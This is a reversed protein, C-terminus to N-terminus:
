LYVAIVALSIEEISQIGSENHGSEHQQRHDALAGEIGGLAVSGVDNQEEGHHKKAVEIAALEVLLSDEEFLEHEEVEADADEAGDDIAEEEQEISVDDVGIEEVTAEDEVGGIHIGGLLGSGLLDGVGYSCILVIFREM